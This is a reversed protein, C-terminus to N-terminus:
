IGEKREIVAHGKGSLISHLGNNLRTSGDAVLIGDLLAVLKANGHDEGSFTMEFMLIMTASLQKVIINFAM